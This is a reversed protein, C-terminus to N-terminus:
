PPLSVCKIQCYLFKRYFLMSLLSNNKVTQRILILESELLVGIISRHDESSVISSRRDNKSQEEIPFRLVFSPHVFSSRLGFSFRDFVSRSAISSRDLVSRLAISDRLCGSRM